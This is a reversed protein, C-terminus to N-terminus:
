QRSSESDDHSPVGGGGTRHDTDTGITCYEENDNERHVLMPGNDDNFHYM